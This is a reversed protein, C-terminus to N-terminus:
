VEYDLLQIHFQRWDTNAPDFCENSPPSLSRNDVEDTLGLGLDYKDKSWSVQSVPASSARISSPRSDRRNTISSTFSLFSDRKSRMFSAPGSSLSQSPSDTFGVFVSKSDRSPHFPDTASSPEESCIYMSAFRPRTYPEDVDIALSVDPKPSPIAMSRTRREPSRDESASKMRELLKEDKLKHFLKSSFEVISNRKRHRSHSPPSNSSSTSPLGVSIPASCSKDYILGPSFFGSAHRLKTTSSSDMESLSYCPSSLQRQLSSAQFGSAFFPSYSAKQASM